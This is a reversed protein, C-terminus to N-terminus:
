NNFATGITVHLVVEGVMVKSMARKIMERTIKNGELYAIM